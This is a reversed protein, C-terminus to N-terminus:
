HLKSINKMQDQVDDPFESIDYIEMEPETNIDVSLSIKGLLYANICASLIAKQSIGEDKAKKAFKKKVTQPLNFSVQQTSLM